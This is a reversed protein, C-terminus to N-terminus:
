QYCCSTHTPCWVCTYPTHIIHQWYLCTGSHLLFGQLFPACVLHISFCFVECPQSQNTVMRPHVCAAALRSNWRLCGAPCWHLQHAPTGSLTTIHMTVTFGKTVTKQFIWLGQVLAKGSCPLPPVGFHLAPAAVWKSYLVRHVVGALLMYGPWVTPM